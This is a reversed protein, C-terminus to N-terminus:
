FYLLQFLFFFLLTPSLSESFDSFLPARTLSELRQIAIASKRYIHQLYWYILLFPPISLLFWPTGLSILM